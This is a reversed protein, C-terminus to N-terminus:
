KKGKGRKAVNSLDENRKSRLEGRGRRRLPPIYEEEEEEEEIPGKKAAKRAQKKTWEDPTYPARPKPPKFNFRRPQSPAPADELQSMGIEEQEEQSEEEEEEEEEEEVDDLRVEDDEQFFLDLILITWANVHFAFSFSNRFHGCAYFYRKM